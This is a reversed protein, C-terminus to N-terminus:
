KNPRYVQENFSVHLINSFSFTLSHYMLGILNYDCHRNEVPHYCLIWGYVPSCRICVCPYVTSLINYEFLKTFTLYNCQISTKELISVITEFKEKANSSPIMGTECRQLWLNSGQWLWKTYDFPLKPNYVRDEATDMTPLFISALFILSLSLLTVIYKCASPFM